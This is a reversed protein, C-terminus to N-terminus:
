AAIRITYGPFRRYDVLYIGFYREASRELVSQGTHSKRSDTQSNEFNAERPCLRISNPALKGTQQSQASHMTDHRVACMFPQKKASAELAKM